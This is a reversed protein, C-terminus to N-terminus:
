WNLCFASLFRFSFMLLLSLMNTTTWWGNAVFNITELRWLDHKWATGFDFFQIWFLLRMTLNWVASNMSQNILGGNQHSEDSTWTECLCKEKKWTNKSNMKIRLEKPFDQGMQNNSNRWDDCFQMQIALQKLEWNHKRAISRLDIM